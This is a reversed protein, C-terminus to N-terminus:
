DYSFSNRLQFNCVYKLLKFDNLNLAARVYTFSFFNMIEMWCKVSVNPDCRNFGKATKKKRMRWMGRLNQFRLRIEAFRVPVGCQTMQKFKFFIQKVKLNVQMYNKDSEIKSQFSPFVENLRVFFVFIEYHCMFSMTTPAFSFNIKLSNLCAFFTFIKM